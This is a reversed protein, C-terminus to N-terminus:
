NKAEVQLRALADKALQAQPGDPAEKLYMQYQKQAGQRDGKKERVAGAILHGLPYNDPETTHCKEANALAGDFDQTRYQTFALLVLTDPSGPLATNSKMLLDKAGALDNDQIKLKALNKTADPNKDNIEVAKTFAERAGVPDKLNMDAVGINNYAWDYKPYEKIAKEFHKRAEEWKKDKLLEMGKSFERHAKEPVNLETASVIGGGGTPNNADRKLKVAVNEHHFTEGPYIDMATSSSEIGPGSVRLQYSRGTPASFSVHGEADTYTQQITGGGMSGLEVLVQTGLPRSDDTTIRVEIRSMGGTSPSRPVTPVTNPSPTPRRTQACLGIAFLLLLSVTFARLRLM